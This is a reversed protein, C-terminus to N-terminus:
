GFIMNGVNQNDCPMNITYVCKIIGVTDVYIYIPKPVNQNLKVSKIRLPTVFTRKLDLNIYILQM